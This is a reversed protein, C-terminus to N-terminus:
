LICLMIYLVSDIRRLGAADSGNDRYSKAIHALTPGKLLLEHCEHKGTGLRVGLPKLKVQLDKHMMMEPLDEPLGNGGSVALFGGVEPLVLAKYVPCNLM